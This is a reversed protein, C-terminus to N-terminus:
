LIHGTKQQQRAYRRGWNFFCHSLISAEARRWIKACTLAKGANIPIFFAHPM